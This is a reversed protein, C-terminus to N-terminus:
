ENGIKDVEMLRKYVWTRLRYHAKDILTAWGIGFLTGLVFGLITGLTFNVVFEM